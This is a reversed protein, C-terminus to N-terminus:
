VRRYVEGFPCIQVRIVKGWDHIGVLRQHLLKVAAVAM